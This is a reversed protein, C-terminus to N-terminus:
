LGNLERTVDFLDGVSYHNVAIFNPLKGSETQCQRARSLLLDHANATRSLNEDPLPNEIWHNLLFLANTRTGRNQRCSFESATRFTYPTDWALDYFRHYWAPPPGANEAGVVVRRGSQIMTRLTPWPVNPDHAYVWEILGSAAFAAETDAVSIHDEIVFALVEFPNKQLFSVIERLGEVLLKNGLLCSRHCLYTSGQYSYTDFLMGRIGDQLQRMMGHVQNPGSWGDDSNSMANHTTPFVVEDFRRDCLAEYGNCRMPAADDPADGPAGGDSSPADAPAGSENPPDGDIRSGSDSSPPSDSSIPADGDFAGDTGRDLSIDGSADSGGDSPTSEADKAATLM